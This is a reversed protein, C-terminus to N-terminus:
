EMAERVENFFVYEEEGILAPNPHADFRVLVYAGDRPNATIEGAAGNILTITTGEPLSRFVDVGNPGTLTYKRPETM